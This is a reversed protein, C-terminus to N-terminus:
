HFSSFRPLLSLTNLTLYIRLRTILYNLQFRFFVSSIFLLTLLHIKYYVPCYNTPSFPSYPLPPNIYKSHTSLVLNLIQSMDSIVLLDYM